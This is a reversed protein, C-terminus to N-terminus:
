TAVQTAISTAEEAQRASIFRATSQLFRIVARVVEMNPKWQEKPGDLPEGTKADEWTSWGGLMYSMDLGRTGVLRILSQR